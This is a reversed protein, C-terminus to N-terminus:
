LDKHGLLQCSDLTRGPAAQFGTQHIENSQFSMEKWTIIMHWCSIDWSKPACSIFQSKSKKWYCAKLIPRFHLLTTCHIGPMCSIRSEVETNYFYFSVFFSVYSGPAPLAWYSGDANLIVSRLDNMPPRPHLRRVKSAMQIIYSLAKEPGESQPITFSLNIEPNSLHSLLWWHKSSKSLILETRLMCMLSGVVVESELADLVTCMCM